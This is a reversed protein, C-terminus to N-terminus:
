CVEKLLHEKICRILVDRGITLSHLTYIGSLGLNRAQKPQALGRDDSHEWRIYTAKKSLRAELKGLTFVDLEREPFFTVQGIKSIKIRM